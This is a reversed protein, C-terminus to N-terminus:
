GSVSAAGREPRVVGAAAPSPVKPARNPKFLLPMLLLMTVLGFAAALGLAHGWTFRLVPWLAAFWVVFLSFNLLLALVVVANSPVYLVGLQDARVYRSGKEEVFQRENTYTMGGTREDKKMDAKFRAPTGGDDPKIVLAVTMSDSDNLQFAKGTGEEVFAGTKGGGPGRKFKATKEVPNGQADKKFDVKGKAAARDAQWRIAEFEGFTTITYPAFEFFTDYKGPNQKDVWVWFTLFASVLLAAGGARLPLREAPQQYFYGQAILSGGWFLAFLVLLLPVFTILLTM